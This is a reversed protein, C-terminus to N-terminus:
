HNFSLRFFFFFIVPFNFFFLAEFNLRIGNLAGSTRDPELSKEM